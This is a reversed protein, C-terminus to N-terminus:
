ASRGANDQLEKRTVGIMGSLLELVKTKSDQFETKDMSRESQSKATFVKVVPGSAVIVAFEDFGRVFAAVRRAEAASACVISREDAYGTKVLAWKRLHEATPWREAEDEPLNKWCENVSAFFHGHSATSREERVVLTYTQGVVFQRDCLKAFRPLAQMAEGDWQFIVPVPASM